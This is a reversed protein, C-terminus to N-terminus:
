VPVKPFPVQTGLPFRHALTSSQGDPSVHLVPLQLMPPAGHALSPSQVVGLPFVQLRVRVAAPVNLRNKSPLATPREPVFMWAKAMTGSPSSSSTGSPLSLQGFM